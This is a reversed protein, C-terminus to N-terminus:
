FIPKPTRGGCPSPEGVQDPPHFGRPHFRMSGNNTCTFTSEASRYMLQITLQKKDASYDATKKDATKTLQDIAAILQNLFHKQV